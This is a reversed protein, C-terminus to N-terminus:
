HNQGSQSQCKEVDQKIDNMEFKLDLSKLKEFVSEYHKADLVRDRSLLLVMETINQM